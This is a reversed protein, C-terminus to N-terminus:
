SFLTFASGASSSACRLLARSPQRRAFCPSLCATTTFFSLKVSVTHFRNVAKCIWHIWPFDPDKFNHAGPFHKGKQSSQAAVICINPALKKVNSTWAMASKM